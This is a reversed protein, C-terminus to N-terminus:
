FVRSDDDINIIEFSWIDGGNSQEFVSKIYIAQTHSECLISAQSNIAISRTVRHTQDANLKGGIAILYNEVIEHKVKNIFEPNDKKLKRCHVIYM